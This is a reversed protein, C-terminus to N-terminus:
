CRRRAAGPRARNNMWAFFTFSFTLIASGIGESSRVVVPKHARVMWATLKYPEVVTSVKNLVTTRTSKLADSKKNSHSEGDGTGNSSTTTTPSEASGAAEDRGKSKGKNKSQKVNHQASSTMPAYTVSDLELRVMPVKWEPPAASGTHSGHRSNNRSEPEDEEEDEKEIRAKNTTGGGNALEVDVLAAGNTGEETLPAAPDAVVLSPASDETTTTTTSAIM